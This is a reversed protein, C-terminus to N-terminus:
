QAPIERAAEVVFRHVLAFPLPQDTFATFVFEGSADQGFAELVIGRGPSPGVDELEWGLTDQEGSDTVRWVVYYRGGYEWRPTVAQSLAPDSM